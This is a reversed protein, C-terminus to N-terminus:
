DCSFGSVHTGEWLDVALRLGGYQLCNEKSVSFEFAAGNTFTPGVIKREQGQPPWLNVDLNFLQPRQEGLMSDFYELVIHNAQQRGSIPAYM